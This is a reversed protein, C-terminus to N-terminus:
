RLTHPTIPKYIKASEAYTKLIKWFGQRSMREGSVNVFLAQEDKRVIMLKRAMEMYASLAKVALPYIPIFREKEGNTCRIFSLKLNVDDVNLMILETVKIGTAYLVELMAKDRIGKVDNDSPQSLLLEIEKNSLVQPGKKESKENPIARAPNSEVINMSVLYQYMSRLASLSRSVSSASLGKKHLFAKYENLEDVTIEDADEADITKSFELFNRLDRVYADVTNVSSKKVEILYRIYASECVSINKETLVDSVSMTKM